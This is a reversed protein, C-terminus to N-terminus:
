PLEVHGSTRGLYIFLYVLVWFFLLLTASTCRSQSSILFRPTREEQEALRLTHTKDEHDSGTTM